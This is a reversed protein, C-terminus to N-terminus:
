RAPLDPPLGARAFLESVVYPGEARALRRFVETTAFATVASIRGGEVSLVDLVSAVHRGGVPDRAYCGVALQGNVRAPLHRWEVSFAYRSLFGAIGDHGAYWCPLPPMSWTADETLLGIVADVDGREMADSYAAVLRRAEEDGLARLASQQSREPGREEIVRRARQLASNLAPVSTELTEAAEQASFGLVECLV